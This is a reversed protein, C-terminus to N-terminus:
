MLSRNERQTAAGSKLGVCCELHQLRTCCFVMIEATPEERGDSAICRGVFWHIAGEEFDAR